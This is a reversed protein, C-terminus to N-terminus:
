YGPLRNNRQLFKTMEYVMHDRIGLKEYATSFGISLFAGGVAGFVAGFLVLLAAINLFKM